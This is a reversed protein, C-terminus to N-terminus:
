KGMYFDLYDKLKGSPYYPLNLLKFPKDNHTKHEELQLKGAYFRV